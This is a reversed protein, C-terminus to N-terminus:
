RAPNSVVQASNQAHTIRGEIRSVFKPAHDKMMERIGPEFEHFLNIGADNGITSGFNSLTESSSRAWYPRYATDIAVSTLVGLFYSTNLGGKGSDDRTIFIRSAADTARGMFSSSTSPHYRQNQKLLSPYLYKGFFAGSEKQTSVPEYTATLSPQLAPTDRRRDTEQVLLSRAEDVFAQFKEAQTPFQASPADPLSGRTSIEQLPVELSHSSDGHLLNALPRESQCLAGCTVLLLFSTVRIPAIRKVMAQGQLAAISGGVGRRHPHHSEACSQIRWLERPKTLTPLQRRCRTRAVQSGVPWTPFREGLRAFQAYETTKRPDGRAHPKVFNTLTFINEGHAPKFQRHFSNNWQRDEEGPV